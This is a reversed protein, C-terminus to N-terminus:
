DHYGQVDVSAVHGDVHGRVHGDEPHQTIDDAQGARLEAAPHRQAPGAGHVEVALRSARADCRYGRRGALLDGGDLGNSFRRGALLHLLRPEVELDHLAAVALRALDHRRRRQERLVRMRAVGVDVARHRTVDAAAPGVRTNAGRDLVGRLSGSMVVCATDRRSKTVTSAVAPPPSRSPQRAPSGERAALPAAAAAGGAKTGFANMRMPVSLRTVRIM